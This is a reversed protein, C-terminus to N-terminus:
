DSRQRGSRDRRSNRRIRCSNRRVHDIFSPAESQRERETQPNLGTIRFVMKMTVGQM